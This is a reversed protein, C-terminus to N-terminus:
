KNNFILYAFGIVSSAALKFLLPKPPEFGDERKSQPDAIILASGVLSFLLGKLEVELPKVGCLFNFLVSCPGHLNSLVYAEIQTTAQAGEIYMMLWLMLLTTVFLSYIISTKSM